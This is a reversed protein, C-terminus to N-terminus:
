SHPLPMWFRASRRASAGEERKEFFAAVAGPEGRAKSRNKEQILLDWSFTIADTLRRFMIAPNIASHAGWKSLLVGASLGELRSPALTAGHGRERHRADRAMERVMPEGLDLFTSRQRQPSAAVATTATGAAAAAPV